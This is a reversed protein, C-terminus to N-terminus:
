TLITFILLIIRKKMGTTVNAIETVKSPQEWEGWFYLTGDYENANSKDDIEEINICTLCKGNVRIFKRRHDGNNWPFINTEKNKLKKLFDKKKTKLLEETEENIDVIHEKGTHPLHVIIPGREKQDQEMGSQKGIEETSEVINKPPLNKAM